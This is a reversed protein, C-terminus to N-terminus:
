SWLNPVVYLYISLMTWLSGACGADGFGLGKQTRPKGQGRSENIFGAQVDLCAKFLMAHHMSAYSDKVATYM